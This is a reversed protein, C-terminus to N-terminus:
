RSQYTTVRIQDAIVSWVRTGPIEVTVRVTEEGIETDKIYAGDLITRLQTRIMDNETVFDRVTTESRIAFGDITEGLKRKADLEAARAAMLKAQAAPKDSMIPAEGVASIAQSRWDPPQVEMAAEATQMFKAPPVGMGTARYYKTEARTTVETFDIEKVRDDKVHRDFSQRITAIVTKWPIEVTVECILEDDHFYTKVEKAGKLTTRLEAEIEDYETVFDRVLTDSAIRFGRLQEGLKRYADLTAARVAMLRGQPGVQKWLDPIYPSPLVEVPQSTIGDTIELPADPRPAGMGTAEIMTIDTRTEMKEIDTTKVRDDKYHASHIKKIEAVVKKYAVEGKVECSGDDFWRPKGLEIGKIFTNMETEIVDSETVFDRVLTESTIQLGMIREALKRYCDAEAARKALLKNQAQKAADEQALASLGPMLLLVSLALRIRNM